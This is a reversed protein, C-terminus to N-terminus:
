EQRLSAFIKTTTGLDRRAKMPGAQRDEESFTSTITSEYRHRQHWPAAYSIDMTASYKLYRYYEETWGHAQKSIRYEEDQQWRITNTDKDRKKAGRKADMVKWHDQEWPTEGHKKGRSGNVRVLHHFAMSVHCTSLITMGWAFAQLMFPPPYHQSMQELEDLKINGMEHIIRSHEESFILSSEPKRLDGWYIEHRLREEVSKVSKGMREYDKLIVAEANRELRFAVEFDLEKEVTSENREGICNGSVADSQTVLRTAKIRQEREVRRVLKRTLSFASEWVHRTAAAEIAM